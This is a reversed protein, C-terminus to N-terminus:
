SDMEPTQKLRTKYNSVFITFFHSMQQKEFLIQEKQCAADRKERQPSNTCNITIEGGDDHRQMDSTM